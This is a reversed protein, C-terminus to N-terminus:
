ENAGVDAEDLLHQTVGAEFGGLDVGLHRDLGQLIDVCPGMRPHALLTLDSM